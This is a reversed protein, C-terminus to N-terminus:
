QGKLAFGRPSFSMVTRSQQLSIKGSDRGNTLLKKYIQKAINWNLITLIIFASLKKVLEQGKM